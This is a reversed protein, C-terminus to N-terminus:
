SRPDPDHAAVPITFSTLYPNSACSSGVGTSVRVFTSTSTEGTVEYTSRM